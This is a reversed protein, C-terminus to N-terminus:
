LVVSIIETKEDELDINVAVPLEMNKENYEKVKSYLMKQAERRAEQFNNAQGSLDNFDLFKFQVKNDNDIKEFQVIYLYVKMDSKEFVTISKSIIEKNEFMRDMGNKSFYTLFRIIICFLFIGSGNEAENKTFLGHAIKNRINAGAKENLIEKFGFVIDEEICEKIEDMELLSGITKVDSSGDDDFIYPVGGLLEVLNRFCNEMQLVLIQLAEYLKGTFGLYLAFKITEKRDESILLNDKVIFDLDNLKIKFNKTIYELIWRLGTDGIIGEVVCARRYLHNNFNNEDGEKIGPLVYICRGNEDLFNSNFLYALPAEKMSDKLKKRLKELELFRAENILFSICQSKNLMQTLYLCFNREYSIDVEQKTLHMIEPLKKAEVLLLRKIREIENKYTANYKKYIKLAKNLNAINQHLYEKDNLKLIDEYFKALNIYTTEVEDRKNLYKFYDIKVAYANEVKWTDGAAVAEDIIKDILPELKKSKNYKIDLFLSIMSLSLFKRDEGNLHLLSNFCKELYEVAIDNDKIANCLKIVIKFYNFCDIWNDENFYKQYLDYYEQIAKIANEIDKKSNEWLFLNLKAKIEVPLKSFDFDLLKVTAENDFKVSYIKDLFDTQELSILKKADLDYKLDMIYLIIKYIAKENDSELEDLRNLYANWNYIKQQKNLIDKFIKIMNEM